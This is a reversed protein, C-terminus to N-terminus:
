GENRENGDETIELKCGIAQLMSLFTSLKCNGRYMIRSITQGTCALGARNSWESQSLNKEETAIKFAEYLLARTEM